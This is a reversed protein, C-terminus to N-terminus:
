KTVQKNARSRTGGRIITATADHLTERIIRRRDIQEVTQAPVVVVPTSRDRTRQRDRSGVHKTSM